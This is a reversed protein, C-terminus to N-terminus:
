GNITRLWSARWKEVNVKNWDMTYTKALDEESLLMFKSIVPDSALQRRAEINVPAVGMPKAFNVQSETDLFQNIFAAAAEANKTGKVIGLYNFEIEGRKDGLTPHIMGMKQGANALRLAMGAHWPAAVIDGLSMKQALEVAASYYYLPRMKKAAAFGPEPNSESGGNALALLTVAPWHQPNVVDPFALKNAYVSNQLDMLTKPLPLKDAEFRDARYVIGNQVMHYAVAKGETISVSTKKLNPIHAEPLDELFGNRTMAIREAPSIEMVDIPVAAGRAAVIKAFNDAPNGPVYEIKVGRAELKSGVFSQIADKWGGGFVGVRLTVNDFRKQDQASARRAGLMLGSSALATTFSRRTLGSM